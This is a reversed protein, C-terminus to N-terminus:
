NPQLDKYTWLRYREAIAADENSKGIQGLMKYAFARERYDFNAYADYEGLKRKPSTEIVKDFDSLAKKFQKTQVYAYGRERYSESKDSNGPLELKLGQLIDDIAKYFLNIRNYSVGRKRYYDARPELEIAKEFDSIAHTFDQMRFFCLGRRFYLDDISNSTNVKAGPASALEIAKNYDAMSQDILDLVDFINGRKAYIAYNKPDLELAASYDAIAEKQRGDILSLM